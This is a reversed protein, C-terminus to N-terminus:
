SRIAEPMWLCSPRTCASCVQHEHAYPSMVWAAIVHPVDLEGYKSAKEDLTPVTAAMVADPSAAMGPFTAITQASTDGRGDPSRPHARLGIVWDDVAVETEPLVPVARTGDHFDSWRLTALWSEVAAIVKKRRPMPGGGAIFRLMLFFDPSRAAEIYETVAASGLPQNLVGESPVPVVAELYFREAGRTMLFDPRTTRPGPPHVEVEFDLRWFLEHLYLEWFASEFQLPQKAKLRGRLDNVAVDPQRQEFRSFWENLVERVRAFAEDDVRDLFKYMWESSTKIGGDDRPRETFLPEAM